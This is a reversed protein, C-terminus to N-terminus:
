SRLVAGNKSTPIGGSEGVGIGRSCVGGEMRTLERLKIVKKFIDDFSVFSHRRNGMAAGNESVLPRL